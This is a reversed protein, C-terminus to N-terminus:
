LFIDKTTKKTNKKKNEEDCIKKYASLVGQVNRKILSFRRSNPEINEFIKLLKFDTFDEGLGNM